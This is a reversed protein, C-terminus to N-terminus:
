LDFGPYIGRWLHVTYYGEVINERGYTLRGDGLLFGLGGLALYQQHDRSIGNSVFAAGARDFQRHWGSGNFGMGILNTQDVETYAFSEHRGENWGWRGFVGFWATLPQEFNVTFGYKVTTQLPHATIDPTPTRGSLFNEIAERYLGMNAHNVFTLFRVTGQQRRIITGRLEVEMNEARARSLDAELHVGNAVKPMLAEAFRLSWHRDDYEIMAGFTYGRTDAAYDWAGNNDITWNMFQFNQDSGYTNLDFFDPLSFKGFRIELRREPLKPFLLYPGRQTDTTTKSLPIIQHYMLRAIYPAKSLTPNRVVDLNTFGALGFAEGIGHGGTEQVDCLIESTSTLRLGTFLTLVRSTADQAEPPLSHPGQYPSTFSPHWQSIFNAQGSLWIRDSEFRPFLTPPQKASPQEAAPEEPSPPSQPVPEQASVAAAGALILLALFPSLWCLNRLM